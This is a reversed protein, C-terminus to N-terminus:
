IDVSFALGSKRFVSSCKSTKGVRLSQFQTEEIPICSEIGDAVLRLDELDIHRRPISINELQRVCEFDEATVATTEHQNSSINLM